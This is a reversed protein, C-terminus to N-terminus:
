PFLFRIGLLATAQAGYETKVAGAQGQSPGQGVIPLRGLVGGQSPSRSQSFGVINQGVSMEGLVQVREVPAWTVTASGQASTRDGENSAFAAGLGGVLVPSIPFDLETMVGNSLSALNDEVHVYFIGLTRGGGVSFEPGAQLRWARYSQDGITRAGLVRFLTSGPAPIGVGVSGLTGAGIESNDYRAGILTVDGNGLPASIYGLADQTNQDGPGSMYDIGLGGGGARSDRPHAAIAIAMIGALLAGRLITQANRNMADGAELLSESPTGVSPIEPTRHRLRSLGLSNRRAM